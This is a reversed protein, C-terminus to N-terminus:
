AASADLEGDLPDFAPPPTSERDATSYPQRLERALEYVHGGVRAVTNAARALEDVTQRLEAAQAPPRIRKVLVVFKSEEGSDYEFDIAGWDRDTAQREHEDLVVEFAEVWQDDFGDTASVALADGRPVVTAWDLRVEYTNDKKSVPTQIPTVPDWM